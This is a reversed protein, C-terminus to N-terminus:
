GLLADVEEVVAARGLELAEAARVVDTVERAAIKAVGLGAVEVV